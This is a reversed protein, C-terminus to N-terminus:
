AACKGGLVRCIGVLVEVEVAPLEPDHRVQKFREQSVPFFYVPSSLFRHPLFFCTEGLKWKWVKYVRFQALNLSFEAEHLTLSCM